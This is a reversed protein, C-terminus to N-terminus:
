FIAKPIVRFAPKLKNEYTLTSRYKNVKDGDFAGLLAFRQAENPDNFVKKNNNQTVVFQQNNNNSINITSSSGTIKYDGLINDNRSKIKSPIKKFFSTGGVTSYGTPPKITTLPKSKPVNSLLLTKVDYDFTRLASPIEIYLNYSEISAKVSEPLIDIINKPIENLPIKVKQSTLYLIFANYEKVQTSLESTNTFNKLKSPDDTIIDNQKLTDYAQSYQDYAENYSNIKDKKLFSPDTLAKDLINIASKFSIDPIREQTILLKRFQAIVENIQDITNSEKIVTNKNIKTRFNSIPFMTSNVVSGQNPITIKSETFVPLLDLNKSVAPVDYYEFPATGTEPFPTEFTPPMLIPQTPQPGSRTFRKRQPFSAQQLRAPIPKKESKRIPPPPPPIPPPIPPPNRVLSIIKPKTPPNRIPTTEIPAPEFASMLAEFEQDAM